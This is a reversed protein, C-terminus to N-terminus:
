SIIIVEIKLQLKGYVFQKPLFKACLTPLLYSNYDREQQVNKTIECPFHNNTSYGQIM